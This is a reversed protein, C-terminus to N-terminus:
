TTYPLFGPLTAPMDYGFEAGYAEVFDLWNAGPIWLVSGEIWVEAVGNSSNVCEVANKFKIAGSDDLAAHPALHKMLPEPVDDLFWEVAADLLSGYSGMFTTEVENDIWEKVNHYCVDKDDFKQYQTRVAEAWKNWEGTDTVGKPSEIREGPKDDTRMWCIRAGLGLIFKGANVLHLDWVDVVTGTSACLADDAPIVAGVTGYACAHDGYSCVVSRSRRPWSPNAYDMLCRYLDATNKAPRAAKSPEVIRIGSAGRVGRFISATAERETMIEHMVKRCNTHAWKVAHTLNNVDRSRGIKESRLKIEFLDALTKM